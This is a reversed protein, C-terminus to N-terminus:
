RQENQTAEKYANLAELARLEEMKKEAQLERAYQRRAAAGAAIREEIATLRDDREEEEQARVLDQVASPPPPEDQEPPEYNMVDLCRAGYLKTPIAHTCRMQAAEHYKGAQDLERALCFVDYRYGQHQYIIIGWQTTVICGAIDVDGLAQSLALARHENSMGSLDTLVELEVDGTEQNHHHSQAFASHWAFVMILGFVAALVFLLRDINKETM